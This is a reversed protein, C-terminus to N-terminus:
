RNVGLWDALGQQDLALRAYHGAQQACLYALDDVLVPVYRGEARLATVQSWVHCVDQAYSQALRRFTDYLQLDKASM